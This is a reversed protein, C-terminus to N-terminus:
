NRGHERKPLAQPSLFLYLGQSCLKVQDLLTLAGKVIGFLESPPLEDLMQSLGKAQFTKEVAQKVKEKVAEEAKKTETGWKHTWIGLPGPGTPKMKGVEIKQEHEILEYLLAGEGTLTHPDGTLAAVESLQDLSSSLVYSFDLDTDKGLWELSIQQTSFAAVIPNVIASMSGGKSPKSFKEFCM